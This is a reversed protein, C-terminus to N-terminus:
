APKAAAAAAKTKKEQAWGHVVLVGIGVLIALDAVNFIGTRLNPGIGMNMFDLVRGGFRARDFWNSGGGGAILAYGAIQYGDLKRGSLAYGAIGLLLLGVGITLIWYRLAPPLNAGLSLFAGENTALQLRFLDGLYNKPGEGKLASSAVYKTAQDCGVSAGLVIAFVLLRPVLNMISPTRVAIGRLDIFGLRGQLVSAGM